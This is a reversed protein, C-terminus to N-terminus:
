VVNRLRPQTPLELVFTSGHNGDSEVWIRGGHSEIIRRVLALGVGTGESRPNLKEFLGFIREAYARPVGIGNDRVFVVVRDTHSRTGVHITPSPQPGMYKIANELLNQVVQVLRARDGTVTPLDPEVALAVRGEGLLPSLQDRAEAVIEQLPVPVPDGMVRGARSLDLLDGLLALMRKAASGIRGIDIHVRDLNGAAVDEALMGLFGTITVLPSKLDHSVTYTFQEMEANRTSLEAILRERESDARKRETVDRIASIRIARGDLHAVRGRVEVDFKSGDVRQAVHEYPEMSGSRIHAEVAAWSEPAVFRSVLEGVLQERRAGLMSLMQENADIVHGRETFVIGEFTADAMGRLRAESHELATLAQRQGTVNLALILASVVQGADDRIPVYNYRYWRDGFPLEASFTEGALTRRLNGEVLAAFEAPLAEHITRGQMTEKSFGTASVEPGDVLVFRLDRDCLIVASDPISRVLLRYGEEAQRLALAAARAESVDRVVSVLRAPGDGQTLRARIEAWFCSGDPRRCLWEAQASGATAVEAVFARARDLTFGHTASSLDGAALGLLQERSAQFLACAGQSVEIVRGRELDYVLVGVDLADLLERDIGGM